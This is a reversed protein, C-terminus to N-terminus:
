IKYSDFGSFLHWASMNSDIIKLIKNQNPSIHITIKKMEPVVWGNDKRLKNLDKEVVLIVNNDVALEELFSSQHMSIINQWFVYTM